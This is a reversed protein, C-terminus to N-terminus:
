IDGGAVGSPYPYEDYLNVLLGRDKAAEIAAEVLRFFSDSLYPTSLGQRSHIFFGKVGQAAMEDIQRRIEREDLDSNWFWFPYFGPEMSRM